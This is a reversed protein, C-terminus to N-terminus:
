MSKNFIQQQIERFYKWSELLRSGYWSFLEGDVLIIKKQTQSEIEHIHKESFPYPESSLLIYDIDLLALESISVIPYRNENKFINEFGAEGLMTHIFTDKGVTMYPDKWILYACKGLYKKHYNEKETKIKSILEEAKNKVGLIEGLSYIMANVDKITLINSIWVPYKESLQIIQEQNNEEKNGIILDPALIEIESIKINKTGGIRKKSYFWEKPHICFKTIGIVEEELGLFHLLETQSPVLSVIRKPKEKIFVERKLQDIFIM